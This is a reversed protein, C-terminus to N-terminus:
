LGTLTASPTKSGPAFKSVTNAYYDSVYITGAADIALGTAASLVTFTVDPTNSLTAADGSFVGVLAANAISVSATTTADYVKDSVTIGTVSVPAPNVNIHVTAVAPTYNITDNPTFIASLTESQGAHLRTGAPPNYAFTGAVDAVADLQAAGLNSGYTIDLPTPWTIVPSTPLWRNELNELWPFFWRTTSRACYPSRRRMCPRTNRRRHSRFVRALFASFM